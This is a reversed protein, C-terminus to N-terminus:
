ISNPPPTPLRPLSRPQDSEPHCAAGLPWRLVGVGCRSRRLDAAASQHRLGASVGGAHQELRQCSYGRWFRIGPDPGLRYDVCHNRRAHRLRLHLRLRCHPDDFRIGRLVVRRVHLGLRGARLVAHDRARRVLFGGFRDARLHRRRHHSRHGADDSQRPRSRTEPQARRDRGSGEDARRAVQDRVLPQGHLEEKHIRSTRLLLIRRITRQRPQAPAVALVGARWAARDGHGDRRDADPVAAARGHNWYSGSYVVAAAVSVWISQLPSRCRAAHMRLVFIGVITLVYFLLAAFVVYDLLNSYLNGYTGDPKRTRLLILIVIWIGQYVLAIGPVGNNNLKGTAKFFLGDKAMAYAVRSGALILGNNCGFTSVIIAVAMM